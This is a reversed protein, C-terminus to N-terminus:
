ILMGLTTTFGQILIKPHLGIRLPLTLLQSKRMSSTGRTTSRILIRISFLIAIHMSGIPKSLLIHLRM